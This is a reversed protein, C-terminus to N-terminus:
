QPFGGVVNLIESESTNYKTSMKRGTMFDIIMTVLSPMLGLSIIKATKKTPDGQDFAQRWDPSAM